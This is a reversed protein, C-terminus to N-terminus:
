TKAYQRLAKRMSSTSVEAKKVETRGTQRTTNGVGDPRQKADNKIKGYVEGSKNTATHM